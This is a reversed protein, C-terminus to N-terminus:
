GIDDKHDVGQYDGENKEAELPSCNFWPNTEEVKRERKPRADAADHSPSAWQCWQLIAQSTGSTLLSVFPAKHIV